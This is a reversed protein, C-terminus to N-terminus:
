TFGKAVLKAKKQKVNGKTDLKSKFIWKNDIAKADPLFEVPKWVKDQKISNTEDEMTNIWKDAELITLAQNYTIHDVIHGIDFESKLLYIIYDSPLAFIRERQLIRVQLESVSGITTPLIPLEKQNRPEGNVIDVSQSGVRDQYGDVVRLNVITKHNSINLQYLTIVFSITIEPSFFGHRLGYKETTLSAKAMDNLATMTGDFSSSVSNDKTPVKADKAM